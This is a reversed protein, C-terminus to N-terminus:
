AAGIKQFLCYIWIAQPDNWRMTQSQLRLGVSACVKKPFSLKLPAKLPEGCYVCPEEQDYTGYPNGAFDQLWASFVNTRERTQSILRTQKHEAGNFLTKLRKEDFTNVHGYPPNHKGCNGCTTRGVRTDQCYPVGVIIESRSVRVLEQAAREVNPVHELVESCLVCDFANDPFNLQQVNGKVPTVREMHWSPKELDLATVHDFHQTLIGTVLGHRAGIELINKRKPLLSVLTDLRSREHEALTSYSLGM